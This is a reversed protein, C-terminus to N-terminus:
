CTPFVLNVTIPIQSLPPPSCCGRNANIAETLREEARLLYAQWAPIVIELLHEDRPLQM